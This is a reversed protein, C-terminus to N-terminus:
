QASFSLTLAIRIATERDVENTDFAFAVYSKIDKNYCLIGQATKGNETISCIGAEFVDTTRVAEYNERLEQPWVYKHYEQPAVSETPPTFIDFTVYGVQKEGNYIYYPCYLKTDPLGEKSGETKIEFGEPLKINVRFPIAKNVNNIHEDNQPNETEYAPYIINVPAPVNPNRKIIFNFILSLAVIGILIVVSSMQSFNDDRFM